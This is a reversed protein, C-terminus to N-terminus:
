KWFSETFKYEVNRKCWLAFDYTCCRRKELCLSLCDVRRSAPRLSWSTCISSLSAPRWRPHTVYHYRGLANHSIWAADAQTQNVFVHYKVYFWVLKTKSKEVKREEFDTLQRFFINIPNLEAWVNIPKFVNLVLSLLHCYFPDCVLAPALDTPKEGIFPLTAGM